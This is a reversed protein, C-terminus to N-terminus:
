DLYFEMEPDGLLRLIVCFRNLRSSFGLAGVAPLFCSVETVALEKAANIECYGPPEIGSGVHATASASISEAAAKDIQVWCFDPTPAPISNTLM